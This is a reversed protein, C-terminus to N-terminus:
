KVREAESYISSDVDGLFELAKKLADRTETLRARPSGYRDSIAGEGAYGMIRDQIHNLIGASRLSEKIGHRFSYAVLRPSRPVGAARIASNLKTSIVDAGRTGAKFSAFLAVHDASKGDARATARRVADQAADLAVGILPVQRDRMATKLGRIANARIWIYPVKGDLIVDAMALGGLEAPGAATNRMLRIINRTEHGLRNDGSLYGDIKALMERNFPLRDHAASNGNGNGNVKQKEFPNRGSHDLDLYARNIMARIAALRRKVTAVAQGKGRLATIWDSVDARSIETIPKDSVIEIFSKVAYDFPREDRGDSYKKADAKLADSLVPSGQPLKGGHEVTAIVAQDKASMEGQHMFGLLWHRDEPTEALINRAITEIEQGRAKAIAIDHRASLIAAERRVLELATGTRWTEIWNKRPEGKDTLITARCDVPVVRRYRYATGRAGERPVVHLIDESIKAM